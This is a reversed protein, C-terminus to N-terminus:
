RKLVTRVGMLMLQPGAILMVLFLWMGEPILRELAVVTMITGIMAALVAYVNDNMKHGKM